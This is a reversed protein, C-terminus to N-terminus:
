PMRWSGASPKRRDRCTRGAAAFPEVRLHCFPDPGEVLLVTGPIMLDQGSLRVLGDADEGGATLYLSKQVAQLLLFAAAFVAAAM